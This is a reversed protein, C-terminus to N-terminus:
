QFSFLRMSHTLKKMNQHSCLIVVPSWYALNLVIFKWFTLQNSEFNHFTTIAFHYGQISDKYKVMNRHVVVASMSDM